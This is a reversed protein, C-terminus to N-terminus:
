VMCSMVYNKFCSVYLTMHYFLGNGDLSNVSLSFNLVIDAQASEFGIPGCPYTGVNENESLTVIFLVNHVAM